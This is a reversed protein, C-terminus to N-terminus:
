LCLKYSYICQFRPKIIHDYTGISLNLFHKKHIDSIVPKTVIAGAVYLLFLVSNQPRGGILQILVEPKVSIECPINIRFNNM